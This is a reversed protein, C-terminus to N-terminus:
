SRSTSVYVKNGRDLRIVHGGTVVEIYKTYSVETDNYREENKTLVRFVPLEEAHAPFPIALEYKCLGQFHIM